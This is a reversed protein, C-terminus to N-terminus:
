GDDRRWYCWYLGSGPQGILEPKEVVVVATCPPAGAMGCGAFIEPLLDDCLGAAVRVAAGSLFMTWEQSGTYRQERLKDLLAQFTEANLGPESPEKAM